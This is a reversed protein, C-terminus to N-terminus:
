EIIIKKSLDNVKIFYIGKNVDLEFTFNNNIKELCKTLILKGSIDFVEMNLFLAQTESINISFEGSTPNPFFSFYEINNEIIDVSNGVTVSDTVSCANGDTLTAIYNGPNLGTLPNTVGGTSWLIQHPIPGSVVSVFVEGDSCSNCTASVPSMIIEPLNNITILVNSTDSCGSSDISTLTISHTGLSNFTYIWGLASSIPSFINGNDTWILSDAITGLDIFSSANGICNSNNALNIAAVSACCTGINFSSSNTEQLSGSNYQNVVLTYNSTSLIGLNIIETYPSIVPIGIGGCTVNIDVTIINGSILSNSVYTCNSSSLNGNITISLNDCDNAPYPSTSVSSIWFQSYGSICYIFLVLSIIIHKMYM